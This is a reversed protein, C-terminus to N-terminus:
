KKVKAIAVRDLGALDKKILAEDYRGDEAILRKIDEAQDFGIEMMLTGGGALYDPVEMIIRKYIDLGDAGGDLALMPEHDKVEVDLTDIVDSRVYPPNSVILDFSKDRINDFLDSQVFTVKVSVGLADTNQKTVELADANQKAVDLADANQKTVELADANQKAVDLADRSIDSLTVHVDSGTCALKAISLGIAGSGCCLDLVKIEDKVDVSQVYKIAEEALIETDLRPILVREDVHFSLGMFEQEGTIYQLPEGELRRGLLEEFRREQDDTVEAQYRLPIDRFPIDMVFSLLARVDFSAGDKGAAELTEQGYEIVKRITQNM